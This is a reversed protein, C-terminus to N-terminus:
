EGVTERDGSANLLTELKRELTAMREQLDHNQRELDEIYTHQRVFQEMVTHNIDAMRAYVMELTVARPAPTDQPM